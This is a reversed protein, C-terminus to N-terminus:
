NVNVCDSADDEMELQYFGWHSMTNLSNSAFYMAINGIIALVYEM